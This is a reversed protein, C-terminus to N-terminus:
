ESLALFMAPTIIEIKRLPHLVLLDRDGTVLYNAEGAIAAELFKDDQPDRCAHITEIPEVVVADRVYAALFQQREWETLYKNFKERRLVDVLEALTDFSVILTGTSRARDFAQRTVSQRLLVASIVTNTDFVFRLESTM